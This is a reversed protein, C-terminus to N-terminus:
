SFYGLSKFLLGALSFALAIWYRWPAASLIEAILREPASGHDHDYTSRDATGM